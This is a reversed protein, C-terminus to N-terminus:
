KTKEMILFRVTERELLLPQHMEHAAVEYVSTALMREIFGIGYPLTTCYVQDTVSSPDQRITACCTPSQVDDKASLRNNTDDSEKSRPINNCKVRRNTQTAKPDHRDTVGKTSGNRITHIPCTHWVSLRPKFTIFFGM